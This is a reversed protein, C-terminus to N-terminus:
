LTWLCALDFELGDFPEIRARDLDSWTGLDVWRREANLRFATVERDRPDVLWLWSVGSAAYLPKKVSLDHRRTTPSLVECVWDPVVKIADDLGHNQLREVRWGALDPVIEAARELELGPEQVIVWGGPGGVGRGFAPELQSSIRAVATAHRLRPRPWTYLVGDIVEGVMNSPVTNLLDRTAKEPQIRQM